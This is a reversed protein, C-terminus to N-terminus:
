LLNYSKIITLNKDINLIIRKLKIIDINILAKTSLDNIIHIERYILIIKDNENSIYILIITYEYVNHKKIDLNYIKILSIKKIDIYLDKKKILQNLFIYDILSITYKINFYYKYLRDQYTLLVKM